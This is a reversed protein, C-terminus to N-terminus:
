EPLIKNEKALIRYFITCMNEQLEVDVSIFTVDHHRETHDIPAVDKADDHM